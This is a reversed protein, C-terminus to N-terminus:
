SLKKLKFYDVLFFAAGFCIAVDALNFIPILPLKLFDVVGGRIFRDFLNSIGGAMILWVGTKKRFPWLIIFIFFSIVTLYLNPWPSFLGWSGKQNIQGFGIKLSLFKSTQDLLILALVIVKKRKEERM